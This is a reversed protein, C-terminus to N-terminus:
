LKSKLVVVQDNVDLNEKLFNEIIRGTKEPQMMHFFHTGEIGICEHHAISQEISSITYALGSKSAFFPISYLYLIPYTSNEIFQQMIIVNETYHDGSLM